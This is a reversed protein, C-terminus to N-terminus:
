RIIEYREEEERTLRYVPATKLWEFITRSTWWLIAYGDDSATIIYKGNFSFNASNVPLTHKGYNALLEGRMNWLKASADISATLIQQGDSSFAVAKVGYKHALSELLNGQENWLKVTNGATVLLRKGSAPSFAVMRVNEGHKFSQAAFPKEAQWLRAVSDACATLIQNGDPSFAAAYVEDHHKFVKISDGSANWLTVASDSSVTLIQRGSPSFAVAMVEGPHQLAYLPSGGATWLRATSDRAATLIRSGEDPSFIASQVEGRHPLNLVRAEEFLWLRANGDRSATLIRKGDPSFAAANVVDGHALSDLLVGREDWLRAFGDHSATVIHKRDPSFGAATVGLGHQPLRHVFKQSLDWLKATHDNAATLIQAGDPSFVAHNVEGRYKFDGLFNGQEDWFKITSLSDVTVTLLRKGDPSIAAAVVSSDISRLINGEGDLLMAIGYSSITAVRQQNAAPIVQYTEEEQKLRQILARFKEDESGAFTKLIRMGDTSFDSLDAAHGAPLTDSDVLKGNMEWLKVMGNALTMVQKGNPSFAASEVEYGEHDFAQLLNGHEDWLKAFGDESATLIRRGDPAIAASTVHKDHSYSAEYFPWLEQSHFIESLTRTVTAPSNAGLIAYAAEAVRLAKTNDTKFLDKAAFALQNAKSRKYNRESVQWQWGALVAFLLICVALVNRIVRNRKRERERQAKRERSIQLLREEDADFQRMGERGKEAMELDADNLWIDKANARFEEIRSNLIRAAQQGPKVSNSYEKIVIPALLAHALGTGRPPVDTLLYLDRCKDLLQDLLHQRGHYIKQLQETSLSVANGSPTTHRYLLDLVLGSEVVRSQWINLQEIQQKFFEGVLGGAQKLEQYQRVSLRPAKANEKIAARWLGTLVIQLMPALPSEESELLDGAIIEPLNVSKNRDIELHFQTQTAPHRTVGEVAEVIGEWSLPALFMEAFPLSQVQLTERLPGHSEERCSLLLKGKPHKETQTFIQQVINLFGPLAEAPVAEGREPHTLNNEVEDLVLLLPRNTKQEIRLWYEAITVTEATLAALQQRAKELVQRAFGSSESMAKQLDSLKLRLEEQGRSQLPPLGCEDGTDQLAQTLTDALSKGPLCRVYKITYDSELRPMLGAQLLSSKGVGAKGYFLLIPQSGATIQTHLKRIEEGRGFFIAADEQKFDKLWIFPAAPLRRYYSEPLPLGFLPQNAAAPLNWNKVIEAGERYYIEWPLRTEAEEEAIGEGHMGRFNATDTEINIQDIAEAWAREIALGAALGRYFRGSLNTAVADNIKQSTGIVAPVGAETLDLAQQRSSCGNLFVLQLGKQRALFSVLGESRAIAHEGSLSELLLEYSDAHGGYHFIAIRDQYEQFVDLINEVTTNSREVIECLGAQRAKQLAKRIGDLETPLNRLYAGGEVRDQAFALFIVPKDSLIAPM